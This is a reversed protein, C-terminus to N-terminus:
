RWRANRLNGLRAYVGSTMQYPHGDSGTLQTGEPAAGGLGLIYALVTGPVITKTAGYRTLVAPDIRTIQEAPIDSLGTWPLSNFGDLLVQDPYETVVGASDKIYRTPAATILGADQRLQLYQSAPILNDGASTRFTIVNAPISQYYNWQAVNLNLSGDPIGAQQQAALLTPFDNASSIATLLQVINPKTQALRDVAQTGTAALTAATIGQQAAVAAPSPNPSSTPSSAPPATSSAPPPTTAPPAASGTSATAGALAELQNRFVYAAAAGVLLVKISTDM